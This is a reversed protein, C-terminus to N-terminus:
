LNDDIKKVGLLDIIKEWKELILKTETLHGYDELLCQIFYHCDRQNLRVEKEESLRKLERRVKQYITRNGEQIGLFNENILLLLDTSILRMIVKDKKSIKKSIKKTKKKVPRAKKKVLKWNWGQKKSFYYLTFWILFICIELLLIAFGEHLPITWIPGTIFRVPGFRRKGFIGVTVHMVLIMGSTWTNINFYEYWFSMRDKDLSIINFWFTLIPISINLYLPAFFNRNNAIPYLLYFVGLFTSILILLNLIYNFISKSFKKKKNKM